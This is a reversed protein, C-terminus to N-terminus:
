EPVVREPVELLLPLGHAIEIREVLGDGIQEIHVLLEAVSAKLVLDRAAAETRPENHGGVKLTRTVRPPPEFVPEGNCIHLAEIRGFHVRTLLHVLRQRAHSLPRTGSHSQSQHSPTNSM